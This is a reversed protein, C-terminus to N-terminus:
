VGTSDPPNALRSQRTVIDTIDGAAPGNYQSDTSQLINTLAPKFSLFRYSRNKCWIQCDRQVLSTPRTSRFLVNEIPGNGKYTLIYINRFPDGATESTQFGEQQKTAAAAIEADLRRVAAPKNSFDIKALDEPSPDAVPDLKEDNNQVQTTNLNHKLSEIKKQAQNSLGSSPTM